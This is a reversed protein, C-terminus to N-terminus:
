EGELIKINWILEFFEVSAARENFKLEPYDLYGEINNVNFMRDRDDKKLLVRVCSKINLKLEVKFYNDLFKEKFRSNRITCFIFLKDNNLLAKKITYTLINLLWIQSPLFRKINLYKKIKTNNIPVGDYWERIGKTSYPYLELLAYPFDNENLNNIFSDKMLEKHACSDLEKFFFGNDGFYYQYIESEESNVYEPVEHEFPNLYVTELNFSPHDIDKLRPNSGLIIVRPNEFNGDVAHEFDSFIKKYFPISMNNKIEKELVNKIDDELNTTLLNFFNEGYFKKLKNSLFINKFNSVENNILPNLIEYDSEAIGKFDDRPEDIADKWPNNNIIESKLTNLDHLNDCILLDHFTNLYNDYFSKAKKYDNDDIPLLQSYKERFGFKEENMNKEEKNEM